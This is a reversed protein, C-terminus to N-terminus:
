GKPQDLRHWLKANRGNNWTQRREYGLQRLVAAARLEEKRGVRGNQLGLAGSLLSLLGFPQSGRPHPIPVEGPMPTPPKSLYEEIPERWLDVEEFERHVDRALTQADQWLVGHQRWLAVGEAWLQDRDRALAEDDAQTVDIPLWRRHGETDNLVDRPNSTGVLVCRRKFTAEFERYKPTWAETRRSV